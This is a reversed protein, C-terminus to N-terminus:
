AGPRRAPINQMGDMYLGEQSLSAQEVEFSLVPEEKPIDWIFPDTIEFDLLLLDGTMIDVGLAGQVRNTLDDQIPFDLYAGAFLPLKNNM